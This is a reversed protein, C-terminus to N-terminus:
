AEAEAMLWQRLVRLAEDPKEDALTRVLDIKKRQLGGAIGDTTM